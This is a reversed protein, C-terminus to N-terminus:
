KVIRNKKKDTQQKETDQACNIFKQAQNGEKVSEM